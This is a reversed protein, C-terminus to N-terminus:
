SPPVILAPVTAVLNTRAALLEITATLQDVKFPKWLFADGKSISELDCQGSIFVIPIHRTAPDSKLAALVQEGGMGPMRMDCVVAEPITKSVLEVGAAGSNAFQVAYGRAVLLAATVEGVM